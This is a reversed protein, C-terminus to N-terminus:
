DNKNRRIFIFEKILIQLIMRLPHTRTQMDAYSTFIYEEIEDYEESALAEKETFFVKNYKTTFVNKTEKKM